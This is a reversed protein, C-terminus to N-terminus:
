LANEIGTFGLDTDAKGSLLSCRELRQRDDDPPELNADPASVRPVFCFFQSRRAPALVKGFGRPRSEM